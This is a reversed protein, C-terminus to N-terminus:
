HRKGERALARRAAALARAEAASPEPYAPAIEELADVIAAAIVLRAYWKHDAPVVYWPARPTATARIAEQYADQYNGWHKRLAVDGARAKWRKDPTAMRDLLRRRQEDKSLHLFFKRVVIGQRGLYDEFARIDAFRERWLRPSVCGAPLREAALVDSNVRAVLVEEYHSRNFVGLCGRRPLAQVCRWLWDHDLEEDSPQKFAVVRCGQPNVGSFVARIASDKGSADMGQIVALLASRGEAYLADQLQAIRDTALRTLERAAAEDDRALSGLDATDLRALRLGKKGDFRHRRSLKRADSLDHMAAGAARAGSRAHEVLALRADVGM